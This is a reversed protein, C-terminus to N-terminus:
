FGISSTFDNTFQDFSGTVYGQKVMKLKKTTMQKSQMHSKRYPPCTLKSITSDHPKISRVIKTLQPNIQIVLCQPNTQNFNRPRVAQHKQNRPRISTQKHNLILLISVRPHSRLSRINDGLHGILLIVKRGLTLTASKNDNENLQNSM